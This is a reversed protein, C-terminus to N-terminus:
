WSDDRGRARLLALWSEYLRIEAAPLIGEAALRRWFRLAIDGLRGRGPPAAALERTLIEGIRRNHLYGDVEQAFDRMLDHPNREQRVSPPHFALDYGRAKLVAQAVFSRWIDTLRFSVHGPLYTLPFAERWFLTNQTNFPAWAERALVVSPGGRRFRTPGPHTLRFIADVDPDEQTLYQQIPCVRSKQMAEPQGPSRIADLPLGRPWVPATTFHSYVNVWGSGRLRLGRVERKLGRGFGPLPINDDDVELILEAGNEVAFLYGLNKRCYHRYPLLDAFKGFHRRQREVGLYEVGACRWTRPGGRDGVVVASWGERCLVQLARLTETPPAITTVVLWRRNM